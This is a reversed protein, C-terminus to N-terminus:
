RGKTSVFTYDDSDASSSQGAYQWNNQVGNDYPRDMSTQADKPASVTVTVPGCTDGPGSNKIPGVIVHYETGYQNSKCKVMFQGAQLSGGAGPSVALAPAATAVSVLPVSWAAHAGARMVSRRSVSRSHTDTGAM